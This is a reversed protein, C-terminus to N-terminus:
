AVGVRNVVYRQLVSDVAPLGFWSGAVGPTAMRVVGAETSMSITRDGIDTPVLWRWCLILAARKIEYPPTAYGHTYTLRVRGTGYPWLRGPWRVFGAADVELAALEDVTLATWASGGYRTAAAAVATVRPYPLALLDGGLSDLVEATSTTPTFAVGCINLFAEAIGDHAATIALDPYTTVNALQQKDFARAEATTFLPV